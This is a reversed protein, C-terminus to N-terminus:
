GLHYKELFRRKAAEANPPRSPPVGRGVAPLALTAEGIPSTNKM